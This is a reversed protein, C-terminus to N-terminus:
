SWGCGFIFIKQFYQLVQQTFIYFNWYKLKNIMDEFFIYLEDNKKKETM